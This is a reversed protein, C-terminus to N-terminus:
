EYIFQARASHPACGALFLFVLSLARKVTGEFRQTGKM